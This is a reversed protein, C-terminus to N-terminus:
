EQAERVEGGLRQTTGVIASQLPTSSPLVGYRGFTSRDVSVYHPVRQMLKLKSEIWRLIKEPPALFRIYNLGWLYGILAGCLHGLLSTGPVLASTIVIFILPTTWTPIKYPGIAFSPNARHTVVAEASLLLFVWVSAGQVATNSRLLGREILIYLIGPFTAFPGTFLVLSVLTGHEAEFRELLPTLALINLFVHFFGLHTVPYTNLRYAATLSVQDPILACKERLGANAFTAVWLAVVVLLILRTVLPLRLVYSRLRQPSYHAPLSVVAM